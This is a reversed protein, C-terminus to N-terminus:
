TRRHFAVRGTPLKTLTFTPDHARTHHRPCLLMGDGNTQGGSHWPIPHHLHCLGPPADCGDANCHRQEIIAVIRQTETHFRRKRGLDLVHSHGDLVAPIIGAECALKRALPAAFALLAKKLAAGTLTDLTFRGHVKGHGDDWIV